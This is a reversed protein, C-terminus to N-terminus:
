DIAFFDVHGDLWLLNYGPLRGNHPWVRDKSEISCKNCTGGRLGSTYPYVTYNDWVWHHKWPEEVIRRELIKALSFAYTNGFDQMYQPQSSCVWTDRSELFGANELVAQLGYREPLAGVENATKRGPAMRFTWNGTIWAHPYVKHTEWYMQTALGIQRLNNSCRTRSASERAMQIAPMLLGILVGIIAVVVLLEILTIGRLPGRRWAQRPLASSSSGRCRSRRASTLVRQCAPAQPLNTNLILRM